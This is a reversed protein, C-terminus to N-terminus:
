NLFRKDKPPKKDDDLGGSVVRLSPGGARRRSPSSAARVVEEATMPGTKGARRRLFWLRTRLLMLTFSSGGFLMGLAVGGFPAIQGSPQAGPYILGLVCFGITVWTLYKGRVPVVFFLLIQKDANATAWAIATAAIAADPGLMMEPHFAVWSAPAVLDAGIALLNGFVVAGGMFLLFRMSGWRQELDTSLFYLGLLSFILHGQSAPHTLLGSTVLRWLEFHLVHPTQCTLASFILGGLSSRYTLAFGIGLVAILVLIVKLAPGPKPFALSTQM